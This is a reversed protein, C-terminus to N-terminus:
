DMEKAPVLANYVWVVLCLAGAFYCMHEAFNLAEQWVFGELVTFCWGLLNFGFGAILINVLAYRKLQRYSILIFILVLVGLVLMIIENERMM